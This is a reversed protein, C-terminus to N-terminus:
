IPYVGSRDCSDPPPIVCLDIRTITAGAVQFLATGRAGDGCHLIACPRAPVPATPYPRTTALEARAPSGSTLTAALHELYADASSQDDFSWQCAYGFGPRALWPSLADLRGTNVARAWIEAARAETLMPPDPSPVTM